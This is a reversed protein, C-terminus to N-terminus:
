HCNFKLLQKCSVYFFPPLLFSSPSPYNQLSVDTYLVQLHRINPMHYLYGNIIVDYDFIPSFVWVNLILVYNVVFCILSVYVFAM